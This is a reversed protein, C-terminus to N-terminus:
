KFRYKRFDNKRRFLERELDVYHKIFKAIRGNKVNDTAMNYTAERHGFHRIIYYVCGEEDNHKKLYERALTDLEEDYKKYLSLYDRLIKEKVKSDTNKNYLSDAEVKAEYMKQQIPTCVDDIGGWEQYFGSGHISYVGDKVMLEAKDGPVLLMEMYKRSRTGDGYVARMYAQCPKDLKVKYKFHRNKVEVSDTPEDPCLGISDNIYIYYSSDRLGEVLRGELKFTGQGWVALPCGFAM